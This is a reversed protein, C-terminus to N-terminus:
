SRFHCLVTEIEHVPVSMLEAPEIKRLGGGYVRGEDVFHQPDIRNMINQVTKRMDPYEQLFEKMIGKPYLALYCNTVTADSHNLIFRFAQGSSKERGMYTCLFLPAERREQCYWYKRSKCLYGNAVSDKGTLLYDWLKPYKKQVECEPLPCDLLFLESELKPNGDEDAFIEDINLYRSNPLVPRFVERPLDLEELKSKKLIFFNNNGTAIGRKVIFYDGLVATVETQKRACQLPFRTWKTEKRLECTSIEKASDPSSLCGGYSFKVTAHAKPMRNRFLVVASSVMADDFQVNNPDYRHIQLLEVKNLLFDKVKKGYGVDMFESPILWGAVGDPEMWQVSQLLFHCYLGALGSLAIGSFRKTRDRIREKDDILHHRVYPPNCIVLNYGNEPSLATFDGTEIRIPTGAWLEKAPDAYHRDIEIGKASELKSPEVRGLLASYFAGTGFAPDIFRVTKGPLLAVGFSVIEDALTSPTSFQGLKRREIVTKEADLKEQLSLRLAENNM